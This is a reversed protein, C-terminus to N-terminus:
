SFHLVIAVIVWACVFLALVWLLFASESIPLWKLEVEEILFWTRRTREGDAGAEVIEGSVAQAPDTTLEGRADLLRLRRSARASADTGSRRLM